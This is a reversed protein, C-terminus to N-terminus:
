LADERSPGSSSGDAICVSEGPAAPNYAISFLHGQPLAVASAFEGTHLEDNVWYNFSILFHKATPIGFAMAQLAGIEYHCATVTAMAEPWSDETKM